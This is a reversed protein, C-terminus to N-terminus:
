STSANLIAINITNRVFQINEIAANKNNFTKLANM